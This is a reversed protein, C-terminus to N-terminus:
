RDFRWYTPSDPCLQCSLETGEGACARGSIQGPAPTGCGIARAEAKGTQEVWRGLPEGPEQGLACVKHAKWPKGPENMAAPKGCYRCPGQQREIRDSWPGNLTSIWPDDAVAPGGIWV